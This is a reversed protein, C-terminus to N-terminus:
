HGFREDIGLGPLKEAVARLRRIARFYRVSAAQTEINLVEAVETNSLEEFHRLMLIERDLESLKELAETLQRTQEERIAAQSPSTLHGSLLQALSAVTSDTSSNPQVTVELKADRKRAALHRRHVNTMTQMVVMRFWVYISTAPNDVFHQIRNVVDVYAEQLIDDPDVRGKLRSDLRYSVLLYLRKRYQSYLEAVAETCGGHIRRLTEQNNESESM